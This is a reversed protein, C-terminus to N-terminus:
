ETRTITVERWPTGLKLGFPNDRLTAQHETIFVIQGLVPLKKNCEEAFTSLSEESLFYNPEGRHFAQYRGASEPLFLALDDVKFGSYTISPLSYHETDKLQHSNLQATLHKENAEHDECTVKLVHVTGQLETCKKNLEEVETTLRRIEKLATQLEEQAAHLQKEQHVMNQM